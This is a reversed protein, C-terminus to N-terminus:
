PPAYHPTYYMRRPTTYRPFPLSASSLSVAVGRGLRAHRGPRGSPLDRSRTASLPYRTAERHGRSSLM